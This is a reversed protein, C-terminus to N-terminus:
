GDLGRRSKGDANVRGAARRLGTVDNRVGLGLDQEDLILLLEVFHGGGTVLQRLELPDDDHVGFAHMFVVRRDHGEVLKELTAPLQFTHFWSPEIRAEGQYLGVVRREDDVRRARRSRGFAGHVRMSANQIAGPRQKSAQAHRVSSDMM